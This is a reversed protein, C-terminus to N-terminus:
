RVEIDLALDDPARRRRRVGEVAAGVLMGGGGALAMVALLHPMGVLAAAITVVLIWAGLAFQARDRWIAAGAVYLVGVVLPSVISMATEVVVPDAGARNLAVALAFVGAFGGFWAWGYMAGREASEGHVGSTRRAIHVATVLAASLLLGAFIGGAAAPSWDLLPADGAVLYMAGYGLLWAVGWVGFLLRGDVDTEDLVRARQAAIVAASTAPDLPVEDGSAVEGVLSERSDTM